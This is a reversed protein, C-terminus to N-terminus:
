KNEELTKFFDLYKDITSNLNCSNRVRDMLSKAYNWKEKKFTKNVEEMMLWISEETDEVYYPYDQGLLQVNSWDRTLIMNAGMGAAAIVKTGPKYCFGQTNEKRISFQCNFLHKAHVIMKWETVRGIKPIGWLIPSNSQHSGLYGFSVRDDFMEGSENWLKEDIHHEIIAAAKLNPMVRKKGVQDHVIMPESYAILGDIYKYKERNPDEHETHFCWWDTPDYILINNNNKLITLNEETINCKDELTKIFVVISDKITNFDLNPILIHEADIGRDSMADAVWIARHKASAETDWTLFKIKM